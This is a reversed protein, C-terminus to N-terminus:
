PWRANPSTPREATAQWEDHAEVLVAGALRLLATSIKVVPSGGIGPLTSARRGGPGRRQEGSASNSSTSGSTADDSDEGCANLTQRAAGLLAIAALTKRM